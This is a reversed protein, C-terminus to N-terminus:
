EPWTECASNHWAYRSIDCQNQYEANQRANINEQPCQTTRQTTVRALSAVRVPFIQSIARIDKCCKPAPKAGNTENCFIEKARKQRPKTKQLKVSGKRAM